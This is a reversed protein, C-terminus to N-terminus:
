NDLEFGDSHSIAAELVIVHGQSLFVYYIQEYLCLLFLNYTHKYPSPSGSFCKGLIKPFGFGLGWSWGSEYIYIYQIYLSAKPWYLKM